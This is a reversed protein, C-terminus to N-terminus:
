MQKHLRGPMQRQLAYSMQRAIGCVEGIEIGTVVGSQNMLYASDELAPRNALGGVTTVFARVDEELATQVNALGLGFRDDLQLIIPSPGAWSTLVSLYRRLWAPTISGGLDSVTIEDVQAELLRDMKNKLDELSSNPSPIIQGNVRMGLAKAQAALGVQDPASPAIEVITAGFEAAADIAAVDDVALAYDIGEILPLADLMAQQRDMMDSFAPARFRNVGAEALDEVWKVRQEVTADSLTLVSGEILQVRSPPLTAVRGWRRGYYLLPQGPRKVEGDVIRGVYITHDEGDYAHSVECDLWVLVNALIPSGTAATYHEFPEFRDEIEQRMGAFVKAEELQEAGLINVAFVGSEAIARHSDLRTAVSVLVQPPEISVSTTSTATLGFRTGDHLTTVITVGAALQAMANKFTQEDIQM